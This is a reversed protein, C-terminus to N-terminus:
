LKAYSKKRKTYHPRYTQCGKALALRKADKAEGYLGKAKRSRIRSTASEGIWRGLLVLKVVQGLIGPM